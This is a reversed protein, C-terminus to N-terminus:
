VDHFKYVNKLIKLRVYDNLNIIDTIKNPRIKKFKVFEKMKIIEFLKKQIEIFKIEKKLFLDVLTDNAAVIVTEYLSNKKPLLNLVKIMPYKKPDVKNFSLDNLLNIDIKKSEITKNTNFFLTNFIPIKMTTEHAIIKILGNNFKLLAHIYSKPHILIKIKNYDINFINKAEIVEYVKNIMSASDISIKRGMKWNPHDLAKSIGINKLKLLPVKYLPGGSATLFIKDINFKQVGQMGFNLGLQGLNFKPKTPQIKSLMDEYQKQYIETLEKLLREDTTGTPAISQLGKLGLTPQLFVYYEAGKRNAISSHKAAM